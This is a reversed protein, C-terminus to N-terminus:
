KLWPRAAAYADRSPPSRAGAGSGRMSMRRRTAQKNMGEKRRFATKKMEGMIADLTGDGVESVQALMGTKRPSVGSGGGGASGGGGPGDTSSEQDVDTQLVERVGKSKAKAGQRESAEQAEKAKQAKRARATNEKAAAEFAKTLRSFVAFFATPETLTTEAFYALVQQFSSSAEELEKEAEEVKPELDAKFAVMNANDPEAELEKQVASVTRKAIALDQALQQLSVAGAAEVEVLEDAFTCAEPDSKKLADEVFHMLNRRRDTSKTDILRDFVTLKFGWAGGRRGSNMHNGYALIVELVKALKASQMLSTAAVLVSIAQPKIRHVNENTTEMAMILSLREKGRPVEALKLLFQDLPALKEDNAVREKIAALEDDQPMFDNRLLEAKEPTINVTDMATVAAVVDDPSMGLRRTAIGLNRARTMDLVSIPGKARGMTLTKAKEESKKMSMQKEKDTVKAAIKFADEFDSFDYKEHVNEDDITAFVTNEIRNKPLAVWNLMPLKVDVKIRRKAPGADPMPAGPPPPPGPPAGPMGPPMPPPPPGGMGPPMPPPPPGGMGPMPPPPPPPPPPPAPAPAAAAAAAPVEADGDVTSTKRTRKHNEAQEKASDVRKRLEELEEKTAQNAKVSDAEVLAKEAKLAEFELVAGSLEARLEAEKAQHAKVASEMEVRKAAEADANGKFKAIEQQLKIVNRLHERKETDLDKKTRDFHLKNEAVDKHLASVIQTHKEEIEGVKGQLGSIEEELEDIVELDQHHLESDKSLEAVNLFNDQYAEIQEHLEETGAKELEELIPIISLQTFEHQLAVQFNMDPVCHVVVNIFAMASVMVAINGRESMLLHILTQFRRKEDTMMKFYDFAELVRRHGRPVLCVAALLELVLVHTRFKKSTADSVQQETSHAGQFPDVSELCMCIQNITDPHEMVSTFGFANNMLARLCLVCLHNHAGIRGDDDMNQFYRMLIDLGGRRLPEGHEPQYSLFDKVWGLTNTRLSIELGQLVKGAPECTSPLKKTKAKKKIQKDIADCNVILQELYHGPANTPTAAVTMRQNLILHWKKVNSQQMFEAAKSKPINMVELVTALEKDLEEQPPMKPLGDQGLQASM